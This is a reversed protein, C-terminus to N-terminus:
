FSSAKSMQMPCSLSIKRSGPRPVDSTLLFSIFHRQSLASICTRIIALLVERLELVLQHRQALSQGALVPGGPLADAPVQAGAQEVQRGGQTEGPEGAGEEVPHRLLRAPPEAPLDVREGLVRLAESRQYSLSSM